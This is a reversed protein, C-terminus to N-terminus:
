KEEEIELKKKIKEIDDLLGLWQGWQPNVTDNYHEQEKRFLGSQEDYLGIFVCLVIYSSAGVIGAVIIPIGYYEFTSRYVGVFTMVGLLTFLVGAWTSGRIYRLRQRSVFQEIRQRDIM